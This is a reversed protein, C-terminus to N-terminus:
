IKNIDILDLQKRYYKNQSLLQQKEKMLDHVQEQCKNEKRKYNSYNDLLNENQKTLDLVQNQCKEVSIRGALIEGQKEDLQKELEEEKDLLAQSIQELEIDKDAIKKDKIAIFNKFEEDVKILEKELEDNDQKNDFYKLTDKNSLLKIAKLIEKIKESKTELIYQDTLKDSFKDIIKTVLSEFKNIKDILEGNSEKGGGIQLKNNNSNNYMTIGVILTYFSDVLPNHAVLKKDILVLSKFIKKLDHKLAPDLLNKEIICHYTKELQANNCLKRFIDNFFAIDYVVITKPLMPLNYQKMLNNIAILDMDGKVMLLSSSMTKYLSSLWEKTPKITREKVYEDDLYLDWIKHFNTSGIDKLKLTFSIDKVKKLLQNLNTKNVKLKKKKIIPLDKISNYYKMFKIPDDRYTELKKHYLYQKEIHEIKKQTQKSINIYDSQIVNLKTIAKVPPLNFHFNGHYYWENEQKVLLIGGMELLHRDNFHTQFEIDFILISSLLTINNLIAQLKDNFKFTNLNKLPINNIWFM